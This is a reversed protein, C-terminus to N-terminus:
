KLMLLSYIGRFLTSLVHPVFFVLIYRNSIDGDTSITINESISIKRVYLLGQKTINRFRLVYRVYTVADFHYM